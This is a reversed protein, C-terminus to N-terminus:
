KVAKRTRGKPRLIIELGLYDALTEAHEISLGSEGRVLRSLHGQTIGTEMAIRYRTQGCSEIQAKIAETLKAMGPTYWFVQGRAITM